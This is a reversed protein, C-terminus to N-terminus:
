EGEFEFGIADDPLLMGVGNCVGCETFWESVVDRGQYLELRIVGHGECHDCPLADDPTFIILM